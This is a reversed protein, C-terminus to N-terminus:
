KPACAECRVSFRMNDELRMASLANGWVCGTDLAFLNPQDTKGELAAWHGFIIKVETCLRPKVDFWPLYTPDASDIKGKHTLNLRGSHDCFRMRTFYNIICRLRDAGTLDDRWLDPQNGYMLPMFDRWHDSQIVAEVEQALAIAKALTWAPALGAHTMVYGRAADHVLLPRHRLWDLLENKDPANLIDQLTDGSHTQRAGAAVALLHLDHNGLVIQHREGAQYLYRLVQLSADGRNVLDGTVWLTDKASDFEIAELLRMFPLFCGQIDGIAYTAM